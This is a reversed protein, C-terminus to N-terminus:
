VISRAQLARRLDPEIYRNLVLVGGAEEVMGSRRLAAIEEDLGAQDLGTMRGIGDPPLRRHVMLAGLLARQRPKLEELPTFRPPELTRVHIQEDAVSDISAVWTQLAEGVNGRTRDFLQNFFRALRWDALGQTPRGDILLEMGTSRHRVLVIDRLSEATFPDLHVSALFREELRVLQRLLADTSTTATVVFLCRGGFQDILNLLYDVVELGGVRREWWLDLDDVVILTGAPLRALASEASGSGGLTRRM